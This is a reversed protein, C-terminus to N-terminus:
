ISLFLDTLLLKANPNSALQEEAAYIAKLSQLWHDKLGNDGKDAAQKLAAAAIRRMAILLDKIKDKDKSLDDVNTLREFASATLLRKGVKIASALRHDDAEALLALFLGSDGGSLNYAREVDSDKNATGAFEAAQARTIPRIYIKQVRSNITPKLSRDGQATLILVTDGPPEELLKLLANQAETTMTHADTLLVVRRIKGTGTTRLKVFRQLERVQDISISKGDPEIHMFYAHNELEAGLLEAALQRAIYVKGSGENGTLMVAHPTNHLASELAALTEPHVLLDIM